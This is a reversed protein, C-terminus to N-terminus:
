LALAEALVSPDILRDLEERTRPQREDKAALWVEEEALVDLLDTPLNCPFRHHPWSEAIHKADFNTREALMAQMNGPSTKAEECAVITAMLFQVIKARKVPDALDGAKANLNFFERYVVDPELIIADDGLASEARVAAPEWIAIADLEGAILGDALPDAKLSTIVADSESLGASALASQLYYAASTDGWTGIRKGELDAMTEIGASKRAVIRYIGETVTMIVRADEHDLSWRLIQTDANAALDALGPFREQDNADWLNPIGGTRGEVLESGVIEVARIVPGAELVTAYSYVQLPDAMAPFAVVSGSLLALCLHSAFFRM